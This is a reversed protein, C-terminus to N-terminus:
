PKSSMKLLPRYREQCYSPQCNYLAPPPAERWGVLDQTCFSCKLVSSAYGGVETFKWCIKSVNTLLLFLTEMLHTQAIARHKVDSTKGRTLLIFLICLCFLCVLHWLSSLNNDLDIFSYCSPLNSSSSSSLHGKRLEYFILFLFFFKPAM